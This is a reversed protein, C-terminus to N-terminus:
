VELSGTLMVEVCKELPLLVSEVGQNGIYHCVKANDFVAVKIGSQKAMTMLNFDEVGLAKGLEGLGLKVGAARLVETIGMFDAMSKVPESVEVVSPFEKSVKKGALLMALKQLTRISADVGFGGICVLDPKKASSSFRTYVEQIEDSGVTLKEKPKAGGFAKELTPAEPSLGVILFHNVAGYAPLSTCFYVLDDHSAAATNIGTFVPVDWWNRGLYKSVYFALATWDTENELGVKVDVLIKGLRNEPLLYGFKPTRGVIASMYQGFPCLSNARAGIIGNCYSTVATGDAIINQGFMPPSILNRALGFGGGSAIIAGLKKHVEDYRASQKVFTLPCKFTTGQKALGKLFNYVVNDPDPGIVLYAMSVPVMCEAEYFEGLKVLVEMAKRYGEGYEGALM